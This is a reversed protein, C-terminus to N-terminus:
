ELKRELIRRRPSDLDSIQFQHFDRQYRTPKHFKKCHFSDPLSFGSNNAPLINLLNAKARALVTPRKWGIDHIHVSFLKQAQWHIEKSGHYVAFVVVVLACCCQLKCIIELQPISNLVNVKISIEDLWVIEQVARPIAILSALKCADNALDDM